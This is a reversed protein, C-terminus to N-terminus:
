LSDICCLFMCRGKGEEPYDGLLRLNGRAIQRFVMFIDEKEWMRWRWHQHEMTPRLNDEERAKGLMLNRARKSCKVENHFSTSILWNSGACNLLTRCKVSKLQNDTLLIWRVTQSNRHPHSTLFPPPINTMTAYLLDRTITMLFVWSYILVNVAYNDLGSIIHVSGWPYTYRYRRNQPSNNSNM